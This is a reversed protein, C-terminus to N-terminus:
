AESTGTDSQTSLDVRWDMLWATRSHELWAPIMDVSGAVVSSGVDAEEEFGLRRRAQTSHWCRLTFHSWLCGQAVQTLARTCHMGIVWGECCRLRRNGSLFSSSCRRFYSARRRCCSMSNSGSWGFGWETASFSDGVEEASPEWGPILLRAVLPIFINDGVMAVVEFFGFAYSALYVSGLSNRDHDIM